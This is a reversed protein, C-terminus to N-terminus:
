PIASELQYTPASTFEDEALCVTASCTLMGPVDDGPAATTNWSLPTWSEGANSTTLSTTPGPDGQAVVTCTSPDSCSLAPPNQLVGSPLAVPTSWTVGGDTTQALESGTAGGILADCTSGSPCSVQEVFTGPPGSLPAWSLGGNESRLVSDGATSRYLCVGGTSCSVMGPFGFGDLVGTLGGTNPDPSVYMSWSNGDTTSELVDIPGGIGMIQVLVVCATASTCSAALPVEGGSNSPLPLRTSTWTSGGDDTSLLVTTTAGFNFIGLQDDLLPTNRIALVECSQPGQCGGVLAPAVGPPLAVGSWSAGDDDSAWLRGAYSGARLFTDIRWCTSGTTCLLSTAITAASPPSLYRWTGGTASAALVGTFSPAQTLVDDDISGADVLCQGTSLCSASGDVTASPVLGFNALPQSYEFYWWAGGNTTYLGLASTQGNSLMYPAITAACDLATGCALVAGDPTAAAVAISAALPQTEQWRVGGDLSRVLVVRQHAHRGVLEVGVCRAATPCTLSEVLNTVAPSRTAIWRATSGVDTTVFIEGDAGKQASLVCRRATPCSLASPVVGLAVPDTVRALSTAGPALWAAAGSALVLCGGRPTCALLVGLDKRDPVDGRLTSWATGGDTTRVVFGEQEVLCVSTSLCQLAPLPNTAVGDSLAALQSPVGLNTWTTGGNSTTLVGTFRPTQAAADGGFALQM